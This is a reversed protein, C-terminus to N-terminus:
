SRTYNKISRTIWSIHSAKPAACYYSRQICTFYITAIIKSPVGYTGEKGIASGIFLTIPGAAMSREVWNEYSKRRVHFRSDIFLSITYWLRQLLKLESLRVTCGTWGRWNSQNHWMAVNAWSRHGRISLGLCNKYRARTMQYMYALIGCGLHFLSYPVQPNSVMSVYKNAIQRM